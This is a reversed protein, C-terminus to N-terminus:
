VSVSSSRSSSKLPLFQRRCTSPRRRTLEATMRLRRLLQPPVPPLPVRSSWCVSCPPRLRRHRVYRFDVRWETLRTERTSILPKRKKKKEKSPPPPRYAHKETDTSLFVCESRATARIHFVSVCVCVCVCVAKTSSQRGIHFRCFFFSLCTAEVTCCVYPTRLRRNSRTLPLMFLHCLHFACCRVSRFM